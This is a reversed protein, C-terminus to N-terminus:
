SKLRLEAKDREIAASIERVAEIMREQSAAIRARLFQNRRELATPPDFFAENIVGANVIEGTLPQISDSEM